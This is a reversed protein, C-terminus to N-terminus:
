TAPELADRALPDFRRIREVAPADIDRVHAASRARRVDVRVDRLRQAFGQRLITQEDGLVEV